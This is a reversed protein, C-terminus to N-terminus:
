KPERHDRHQKGVEMPLDRYARNHLAMHGKQIGETVLARLAALNQALGVAVMVQALETAKTVQLIKLAVGVAPNSGIAGGIIGVPMPLELSGVLEGGTGVFWRTMPRYRGSRAAYAHAAAEIARWDNGTSVAVADIGNMIGKNHTVARYVDAEAFAYAAVIRDRVEVGSFRATELLQPPIACQAYAVCRDTYNSLIRLYVTGETIQEVVPAIVEMMTDIVNAGMADRTDIIVQVILMELTGDGVDHNLLRAEIELAGGGRAKMNPQSQNALNLLEDAQNIVRERSEVFDPCNVVQIQGVMRRKSAAARFGGAKRVIKAANSASAIVSPEEISMPVLYDHHNIQFNTAVGLPLPLIALANEIMTDVQDLSLGDGSELVRIEEPALNYLKSIVRLREKIPLAYFGPLRSTM